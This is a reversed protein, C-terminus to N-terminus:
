YGLRLNNIKLTSNTGGEFLAGSSSSAAVFSLHTIKDTANGFAGNAPLSYAPAGSPLQGYVLAVNIDQMNSVLESSRFWGTAIRKPIATERNELLLYIDCSDPKNLIVGKNNRYPSGPQYSYSITFSKPRASFPIGFKTSNLPNAIDLVFAGTFISGAGMRQNVLQGLSGLDKTVLMAGKDAPAVDFPTVNAQNITVVGANGSAWITNSGAGPEQYNKGAPTYWDDLGANELQPNAGEQVVYVTYTATSGDEARVIYTQAKTFDRYATADPEISAYSSLEISDPRLKTLTVNAGVTLRIVLSDEFIQTSGSQGKLTFYRIQKLTSKGFYNERVCSATLLVVAFFFTLRKM